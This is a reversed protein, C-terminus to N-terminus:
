KNLEHTESSKLLHGVLSLFVEGAFLAISSPSAKVQFGRHIVLKFQLFLLTGCNVIGFCLGSDYGGIQM